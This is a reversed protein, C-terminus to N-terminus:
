CTRPQFLGRKGQKKKKKREKTWVHTCYHEQTGGWANAARFWAVWSCSAQLQDFHFVSLCVFIDILALIFCFNVSFCIVFDYSTWKQFFFCLVWIIKKKGKMHINMLHTDFLCTYLGVPTLCATPHFRLWTPSVYMYLRRHLCSVMNQSCPFVLYLEAPLM